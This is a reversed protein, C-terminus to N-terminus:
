PKGGRAPGAQGRVLRRTLWLELCLGALAALVLGRWVENQGHSPSVLRGALRDPDPEFTLPWGRALGAAEGAALPTLDYERPDVVVSAYALGGPTGPLSLRYVGPESTDRYVARAPGPSRVVPALVVAGGPVRLPLTAVEAAPIPDLDFALPEGPRVARPESRGSALHFAWEHVLPVFEPNVPLTGAGAGLPAALVLVRGRGHRGEVAWPDGTDLRATVSSGPLPALVRYAFLDAEALPPADGGAFRSLVPGRFTRPAPHAVAERRGSDGRVAGLRAPMWAQANWAEPDARDGPALVLGGGEEVFRDLAAAQDGRLRGVDALVVVRRGRLAGAGLAEATVVSARIPAVDLGTPALAARLFDTAGSLPEVGPEGDVLLVPLAATVVVPASAEDDGPMADAGVLRVSLLHEGLAAPVVRFALSAEGGVPVPGVVRGSGPEARGDVLLEVARTLPGPGANALTATVTVPMGPTVLARSTTIPGLSGNPTDPPTGAGFALAWLHPPGPTRRHLDRVLGWRMPEGARWAFRQGDGLVVVDRAPGPARELIRFAEVLASPLDSSGRSAAVGKLTAEIPGRDVSPPDVPARAREGAVVVAVADGPRLRAVFGRAWRLALAHPTTGGVERRMSASGDLVLVVDRRGGGGRGAVAGTASDASPTWFPRALALAVLALLAMRTLMVLWGALRPRRREREGLELFMMAGWDTMEEYRRSWLHVILPILMGLLGALMAAYQVGWTM